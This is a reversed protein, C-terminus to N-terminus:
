RGDDADEIVGDAIILSEIPLRLEVTAGGAPNNDATVRGGLKRAVNVTLFLGLGRGPKNKTSQYPKGFRALIDPAFGPGRDQVTVTLLGDHCAVDIGVWAPSAELANDFVNFLSQKIATDSVIAVDDTIHNTYDIARDAHARRWDAVVADLFRVLTTREAGEGRAEGATLLIRSVIEKCRALAAQMEAVDDLLEADRENAPMHQWDNLIVSLTALPTGLEHAAGSALLGMRVIHDEEVSKQRLDSLRADRQRLNGNIRTVFSVALVSALLFCIFTGALYLDFVRPWAGGASALGQSFLAIDRHYATLGVFCASTLGVLTWTLAPQLLVAGLIVQLLFLSVFPNTAGGSLYLQVTLAAVDLLLGLFLEGNAIHPSTRSRYLSVLNLLVLFLVVGAMPILPLEIDFWAQAMAITAVQGGVALWRLTVLLLLNKKNTTDQISIEEM